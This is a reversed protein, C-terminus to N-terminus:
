LRDGSSEVRRALSSRSPADARAPTAIRAELGNILLVRDMPVVSPFQSFEEGGIARSAQGGESAASQRQPDGSRDGGRARWSRATSETSPRSIGRDPSLSCKIRGKLVLFTTVGQFQGQQTAVDFVASKSPQNGTPVQVERVNGFGQNSFFARIAQGALGQRAAGSRASEQPEADLVLCTRGDAM